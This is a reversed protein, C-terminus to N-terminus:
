QLLLFFNRKVRQQAFCSTRLDLLICSVLPLEHLSWYVLHHMSGVSPQTMRHGSSMVRNVYVYPVASSSNCWLFDGLKSTQVPNNDRLWILINRKTKASLLSQDGTKFAGKAVRLSLLFHKATTYNTRGTCISTKHAPVLMLPSPRKSCASTLMHVASTSNCYLTTSHYFAQWTSPHTFSKCSTTRSWLWFAWGGWSFDQKTKNKEWCWPWM